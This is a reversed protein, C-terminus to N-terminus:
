DTLNADSFGTTTGGGGASPHDPCSANRDVYHQWDSSQKEATRLSTACSSPAIVLHTVDM